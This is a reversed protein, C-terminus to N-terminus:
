PKVLMIIRSQATPQDHITLTISNGVMQCPFFCSGCSSITLVKSSNTQISKLLFSCMSTFIYKWHNTTSLFIQCWKVTILNWTFYVSLGQTIFYFWTTAIVSQSFIRTSCRDIREVSLFFLSGFYSGRPLQKSTWLFVSKWQADISIAVGPAGKFISLSHNMKSLTFLPVLRFLRFCEYSLDLVRLPIDHHQNFRTLM